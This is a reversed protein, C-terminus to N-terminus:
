DVIARRFALVTAARRHGHVDAHLALTLLDVQLRSRESGTLRGAHNLGRETLAAAEESAFMRLARNAATVCANACLVHDDGLSAHHAIADAREGEPDALTALARAIQLHLLRRRPASVGHY